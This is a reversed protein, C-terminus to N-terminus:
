RRWFRPGADRRMQKIVAKLAADTSARGYHKVLPVDRSNRMPGAKWAESMAKGSESRALKILDVYSIAVKSPAQIQLQTRYFVIRSQIASIQTTLAQQTQRSPDRRAILFPAELYDEIARIAEGYLAVRRERRAFAQQIFYGILLATAGVLAVIVSILSDIGATNEAIEPQAIM